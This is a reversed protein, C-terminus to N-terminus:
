LHEIALMLLLDMLMINFIKLLLKSNTMTASDM